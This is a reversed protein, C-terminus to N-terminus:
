FSEFLDIAHLQLMTLAKGFHPFWIICLSKELFVNFLYWSILGFELDYEDNYLLEIFILFILITLFDCRLEIPLSKSLLGTSIKSIYGPSNTM